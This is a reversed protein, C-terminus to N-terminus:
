LDTDRGAFCSVECLPFIYVNSALQVYEFDLYIVIDLPTISPSYHARGTFAVVVYPFWLIPYIKEITLYM